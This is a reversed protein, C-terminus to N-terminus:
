GVGEQDKATADSNATATFRPSKATEIGFQDAPWEAAAPWSGHWVDCDRNDPLEDDRGSANRNRDLERCREGTLHRTGARLAEVQLCAQLSLRRRYGFRVM